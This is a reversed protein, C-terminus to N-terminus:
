KKQISLNRKVKKLFTDGIYKWERFVKSKTNKKELFKDQNNEIIDIIKPIFQYQHLVLNRAEVIAEFNKEYWNEEIAQEIKEIAEEFNNIDVLIMSKEPFYALINPCGWYIPMTYALFCDAIKETFYHLHQSNEIALSYRYKELGEWKNEIFLNGRGFWDLKNKFHGKLLNTFAYRKKHGEFHTMDSIIASLNKTKQIAEINLLEDFNQHVQWPCVYQTRIVNPHRIDDRSTIITDFQEIHKQIYSKVSMEESTIFISGHKSSVKEHKGNVDAHILWYDCVDCDNNIEFRYNAWVGKSEPTQALYNSPLDKRKQWRAPHSLKIIKM